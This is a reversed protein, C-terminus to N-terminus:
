KQLFQFNRYDVMYSGNSSSSDGDNLKKLQMHNTGEDESEDEDEVLYEHNVSLNQQEEM